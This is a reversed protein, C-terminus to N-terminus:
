LVAHWVGRLSAGFLNTVVGSRICINNLVGGWFMVGSRKASMELAAQGNAPLLFPLSPQTRFLSHHRCGTRLNRSKSRDVVCALGHEVVDCCSMSAATQNVAHWAHTVGGTRYRNWRADTSRSPLQPHREAATLRSESCGLTRGIERMTMQEYYYLVVILRDRRSFERTLWRRLDEREACLLPSALRRDEMSNMAEAEDSHHFERSAGANNFSVVAAPNGDALLKRFDAESLKMSARLEDLDPMRGHRKQFSETAAQLQKARTRVLRPVPDLSRLYDRMAGYIRPSSFTEFRVDRDIDFREIVDVLGDYAQHVLDELEVQRPIQAHLRKAIRRVHGSMYHIILYNRLASSGTRKFERWVQALTAEDPDCAPTRTEPARTKRHCSAPPDAATFPRRPPPAAELEIRAPESGRHRPVRHQQRSVHDAQVELTGRM